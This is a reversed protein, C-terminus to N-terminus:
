ILFAQSHICSSNDPLSSKKYKRILIGLPFCSSIVPVSPHPYQTSFLHKKKDLFPMTKLYKFEALLMISINSMSWNCIVQLILIIQLVYCIDGFQSSQSTLTAQIYLYLHQKTKCSKDINKFLFDLLIMKLTDNLYWRKLM